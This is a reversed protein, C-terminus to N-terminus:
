WAIGDVFTEILKVLGINWRVKWKENIETQYFNNIRKNELVLTHAPDIVVWELPFNSILTFLVQSDTGAWAREVTSGDSFHFQVPVDKYSGGLKRVLVSHEYVLEGDRKVKKSQVQDISYDAMLGGYVFQDFFGSWSTSTVDELTKQFDMTSPHRFKWREFYTRLVKQMQKKGIQDEIGKLVLKARIYVNDAYHSHNEYRWADQKLPAPTTMYSSELPLNPKEGFESEMVMDEAYSTFGEDLWAEEFENSAVMGYWYQHGIEHVIVRELGFGSTNGSAAWGTVLTPYEMGGAGNAGDPPVVISLTSYPYTGYWESYKALARKAAYFYRDKLDKHAPDLYLKIKVGPINPTSFPEEAYVFEPSAAWAFDHVDDAYFSYTKKKGDDSAPKTPFGTAAVTYTSPVQIRVNYIGFDAYFESNGHYQHLNWGEETRGRTGKPEYVALKPFWQGAMVFDDKYGMRAFVRPLQVSFNLKLTTREGPNVAKPLRVKVLTQDQKNGDDPQVFQLTSSLDLGDEARISTIDMRGFSDKTMEDQRLKGGSEKNFTTRKSQFANPYMHFYLESVPKSGPNEWTIAQAGQLTKNDPDLQVSMHYEVIRDSLAKPAIRIPAPPELQNGASPEQHLAARDSSNSGPLFAASLTGLALVTILIWLAPHKSLRLFYNSMSMNVGNVLKRGWRYTQM